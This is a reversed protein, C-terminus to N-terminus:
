GEVRPRLYGPLGQSVTGVCRTLHTRHVRCRLRGVSERHCNQDQYRLFCQRVARGRNSRSVLLFPLQCPHSPWPSLLGRLTSEIIKFNSVNNLFDSARPAYPNRRQTNSSTFGNTRGPEVAVPSMTSTQLLHHGAFFRILTKFASRTM